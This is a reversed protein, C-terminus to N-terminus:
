KWIVERAPRVASPVGKGAGTRRCGASAVSGGVAPSQVGFLASNGVWGDAVARAVCGAARCRPCAAAGPCTLRVPATSAPAGPAQYAARAGRALPGFGHTEQFTEDAQLFGARRGLRREHEIR